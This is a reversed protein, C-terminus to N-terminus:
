AAVEAHQFIDLLADTLDRISGDEARRRETAEIAFIVTTHDRDFLAGIRPLSIPSRQRIVWMAAQRVRAIRDPRAPGLLEAEPIGTLRATAAIIARAVGREYPDFGPLPARYAAMRRSAAVLDIM